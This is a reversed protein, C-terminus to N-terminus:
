ENTRGTLLVLDLITCCSRFLALVILNGPELSVRHTWYSEEGNLYGLFTDFGRAHPLSDDSYSGLHWKGVIHSEYGAENM